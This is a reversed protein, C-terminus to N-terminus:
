VGAFGGGDVAEASLLVQALGALGGSACLQDVEEADVVLVPQDVQGAVTVGLYGGLQTLMPPLYERAEQTFALCELADDDDDIGAASETFQVPAENFQNVRFQRHM